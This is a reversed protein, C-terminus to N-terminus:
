DISHNFDLFRIIQAGEGKAQRGDYDAPSGMM